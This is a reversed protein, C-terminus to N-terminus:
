QDIQLSRPRPVDVLATYRIGTGRAPASHRSCRIGGPQAIRDPIPAPRAAPSTCNASRMAPQAYSHGAGAGACRGRLGASAVVGAHPPTGQHNLFFWVRAVGAVTVGGWGILYFWGQPSDRLPLAAAAGLALVALALAVINIAQNALPSRPWIVIVIALVAAIAVLVEDVQGRTPLLPGAGPIWHHIWVGHRPRLQHSRGVHAHCTAVPKALALPRRNRREDRCVYLVCSAVWGCFMLLMWRWLAIAYVTAVIGLLLLSALIASTFRVRQLDLAM